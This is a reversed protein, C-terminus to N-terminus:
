RSRSRQGRSLVRPLWSWWSPYCDVRAMTAWVEEVPVPFTFTGDFDIVPDAGSKMMFEASPVSPNRLQNLEYGRGGGGM